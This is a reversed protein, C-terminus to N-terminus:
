EWAPIHATSRPECGRSIRRRCNRFPESSDRRRCVTESYSCGEPTYSCAMTAEHITHVSQCPPSMPTQLLNTMSSPPLRKNNENQLQTLTESECMRFCRTLSYACNREFAVRFLSFCKYGITETYLLIDDQFPSLLYYRILNENGTGSSYLRLLWEMNIYPRMKWSWSTWGLVEVRGQTSM